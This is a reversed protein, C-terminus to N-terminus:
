GDGGRGKDRGEVEVRCVGGSAKHPTAGRGEKFSLTRGQYLIEKFTVFVLEKGPPARYGPCLTGIYYLM